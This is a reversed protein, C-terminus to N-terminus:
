YFKIKKAAFACMKLLIIGHRFRSINTSGYLKEMYRLPMDIIESALNQYWEIYLRKLFQKKRIISGHLLTTEPADLSASWNKVGPLTLLYRLM